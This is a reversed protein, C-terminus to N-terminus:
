GSVFSISPARAVFLNSAPISDMWVCLGCDSSSMGHGAIPAIISAIVRPCTNLWQCTRCICLMTPRATETTAKLFNLNDGIAGAINKESIATPNLSDLDTSLLSPMRLGEAGVPDAADEIEIAITAEFNQCAIAMFNNNKRGFVAREKETVEETRWDRITGIRRHELDMRKKAICLLDDDWAERFLFHQEIIARVASCVRADQM